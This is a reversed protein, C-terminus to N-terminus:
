SPRCSIGGETLHDDPTSLLEFRLEQAPEISQAIRSRKEDKLSSDTTKRSAVGLKTGSPAFNGSGLQSRGVSASM